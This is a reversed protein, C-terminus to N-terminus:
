ANKNKYNNKFLYFSYLSFFHSLSIKQNINIQSLIWSLLIQFNNIRNSHFFIFKYNTTSLNSLNIMPYNHYLLKILLLFSQIFNITKNKALQCIKLHPVISRILLSFNQLPSNNFNNNPISFNNTLTNFYTLLFVLFLGNYKPMM